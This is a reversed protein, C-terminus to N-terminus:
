NGDLIDKMIQPMTNYRYTCFEEITLPIEGMLWDRVIFSNGYCYMKIAFILEKSLADPGKKTQVINKFFTLCYSYLFHDFSNQGEYNYINLFYDKNHLYFEAYTYQTEYWSKESYLDDFTKHVFDEYFWCMLEFKDHFYRYFTAKSVNAREIIEQITIAEFSKESTLQYLADSLLKKPDMGYAM